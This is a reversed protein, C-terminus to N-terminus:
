KLCRAWAAEDELYTSRCRERAALAPLGFVFLELFNPLAQGVMKGQETLLYECRSILSLM